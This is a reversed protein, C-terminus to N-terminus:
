SSSMITWTSPDRSPFAAAWRPTPSPSMVVATPTSMMLRAPRLVAQEAGLGDDDEIGVDALAHAEQALHVQLQGRLHTEERGLQVSQVFAIQPASRGFPGIRHGAAERGAE